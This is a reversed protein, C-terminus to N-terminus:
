PKGDKGNDPRVPSWAGQPDHIADLAAKAAAVEQKALGIHDDIHPGSMLKDLQLEALALREIAAIIKKDDDRPMFSTLIEKIQSM